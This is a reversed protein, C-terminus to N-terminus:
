KAGGTVQAPCNWRLLGRELPHSTTNSRVEYTMQVYGQAGDIKWTLSLKNGDLFPKAHDALRFLGWPGEFTLPKLDVGDGAEIALSAGDDPNKGPWSLPTFQQNGMRYTFSEGGLDLRVGRVTFTANPDRNPRGPRVFPSARATEMPSPRESETRRSSRPASSPRSPVTADKMEGGDETVVESLNAFYFNWFAGKPGFFDEFDKLPVEGDGGGVPYRGALTQQFLRSVEKWENQIGKGKGKQVSGTVAGVPVQLIAALASGVADDTPVTTSVWGVVEQVPGSNLPDGAKAVDAYAESLAKVKEQYIASIPKDKSVMGRLRSISISKEKKPDLM